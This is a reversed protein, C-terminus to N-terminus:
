LGNSKSKKNINRRRIGCPYGYENSFYGINKFKLHNQEELIYSQYNKEWNEVYLEYILRELRELMKNM